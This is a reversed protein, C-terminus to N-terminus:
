FEYVASGFFDRNKEIKEKKELGVRGSVFYFGLCVLITVLLVIFIVKREGSRNKKVKKKEVGKEELRLQEGDEKSM